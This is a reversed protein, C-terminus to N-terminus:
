QQGGTPAEPHKAHKDKGGFPKIGKKKRTEAAAKARQSKAVTMINEYQRYIVRAVRDPLVIRQGGEASVSQLLIIFSEQNRMTEIVWTAGPMFSLPNSMVTSVKHLYGPTGAVTERARDFRDEAM